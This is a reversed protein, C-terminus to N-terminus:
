YTNEQWFKNELNVPGLHIKGQTTIWLIKKSNFLPNEYESLKLIVVKIIELCLTTSKEWKKWSPRTRELPTKKQSETSFIHHFVHTKNLPSIHFPSCSSNSCILTRRPFRIKPFCLSVSSLFRCLPSPSCGPNKNRQALKVDYMRWEFHMFHVIWTLCLAFYENESFEWRVSCKLVSNLLFCLNRARFTHVKNCRPV